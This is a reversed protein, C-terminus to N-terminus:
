DFLMACAFTSSGIYKTKSVAEDLLPKLKIDPIAKGEQRRSLFGEKLNKCLAESFLGPDVDKKDWGGVGDAVAILNETVIHSDEGGKYAKNINPINKVAAKLFNAQSSNQNDEITMEVEQSM